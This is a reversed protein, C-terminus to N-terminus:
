ARNDPLKLRKSKEDWSCDLKKLLSDYESGDVFYRITDMRNSAEVITKRFRQLLRKYFDGSRNTGQMLKLILASQGVLRMM